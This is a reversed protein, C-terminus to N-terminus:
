SIAVDLYDGIQFNVGRLTKHDDPGRRSGHVQGIERMVNEGQRDPYVLAFSLRASVRQAGPHVEKVLDCLERLTADQWTYVQFEDRPVAGGRGFAQRSHHGGMKSFARLLFPCTKTRDVPVGADVRADKNWSSPGGGTRGSGGM